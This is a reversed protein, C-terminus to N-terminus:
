AAARRDGPQVDGGGAAAAGPEGARHAGPGRPSTPTACCTSAGGPRPTSCARAACCRRAGGRRDRRHRREQARLRARGPARGAAHGRPRPLRHPRAGAGRPPAGAATRALDVGRRRRPRPRCRPDVLDPPCRDAIVLADRPTPPRGSSPSTPTPPSCSACGSASSRRATWSCSAPPGGPRPTGDRRQDLLTRRSREAAADDRSGGASTPRGSTLRDRQGPRQVRSPGTTAARQSPAHHHSDPPAAAVDRPASSPRPRPPAARRTVPVERRGPRARGCAARPTRRRAGPSRGGCGGRARQDGVDHCRLRAAWTSGSRRVGAPRRVPVGLEGVQAGRVREVLHHRQQAARQHADGVLGHM